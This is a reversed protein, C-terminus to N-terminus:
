RFISTARRRVGPLGPLGVVDAAVSWKPDITSRRVIKFQEAPVCILAIAKEIVGEELM